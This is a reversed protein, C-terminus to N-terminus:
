RSRWQQAEVLHYIARLEFAGVIVAAFVLGALIYVMINVLSLTAEADRVRNELAQCRLILSDFNM